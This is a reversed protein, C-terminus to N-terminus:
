FNTGYFLDLKLQPAEREKRKAEEEQWLRIEEAEQNIAEITAAIKVYDGSEEERGLFSGNCATCKMQLLYGDASIFANTVLTADCPCFPCSLKVQRYKAIRM